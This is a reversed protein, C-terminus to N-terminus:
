EATVTLGGYPLLSEYVYRNIVLGGDTVGVPGSLTPTAFDTMTFTVGKTASTADIVIDIDKDIADTLASGVPLDAALDLSLTISPTGMLLLSPLRKTDTTKSDLSTYPFIGTRYNLEFGQCGYDTSDVLVDFDHWNADLGGSVADQADGTTSQSPTLAMFDLTCTPLADPRVGFRFGAPKSDTYLWEADQNGFVFDKDAPLAAAATARVMDNMYSALVEQVDFGVVATVLGGRAVVKGAIANIRRINANVDWTGGVIEGFSTTGVLMAYQVDGVYPANDNLAM